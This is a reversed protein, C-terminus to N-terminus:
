IGFKGAVKACCKDWSSSINSLRSDLSDDEHRVLKRIVLILVVMVVLILVIIFINM